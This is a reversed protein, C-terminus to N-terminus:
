RGHDTIFAVSEDGLFMAIFGLFTETPSELIAECGVCRRHRWACREAAGIARFGRAVLCQATCCLADLHICWAAHM